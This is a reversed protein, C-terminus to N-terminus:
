GPLTDNQEGFGLLPPKWVAMRLRIVTDGNVRRHKSAYFPRPNVQRRCRFDSPKHRAAENNISVAVIAFAVNDPRIFFQCRKKFGFLHRAIGWLGGDFHRNRCFRPLSTASDLKM